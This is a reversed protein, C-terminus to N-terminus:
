LGDNDGKLKRPKQKRRALMADAYDYAGATVRTLHECHTVSEHVEKYKCKSIIGQLAMGAFWDRLSMGPDGADGNQDWRGDQLQRQENPVFPFAPGGDDIQDAM